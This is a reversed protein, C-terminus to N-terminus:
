DIAFIYQIKGKGAKQKEFNNFDVYTMKNKACYLPGAVTWAKEFRVQNRNNHLNADDFLWGGHSKGKWYDKFEIWTYERGNYKIIDSEAMQECRVVSAEKTNNGREIYSGNLGRMQHGYLCKHFEHNNEVGCIRGCCPCKENCIVVRIMDNYIMRDRTNLQSVEDLKKTYIDRIEPTLMRKVFKPLNTM